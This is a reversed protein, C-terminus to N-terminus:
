LVEDLVTLLAPRERVGDRDHGLPPFAYPLLKTLRKVNGIENWPISWSSRIVDTLLEPHEVRTRNWTQEGVDHRVQSLLYICRLELFIDSGNQDTAPLGRSALLEVLKPMSHLYIAGNLCSHERRCLAYEMGCVWSFETRCHSCTMHCCADTRETPVLCGPCRRHLAEVLAEEIKRCVKPVADKYFVREEYEKCTWPPRHQAMGCLACFRDVVCGKRLCKISYMEEQENCLVLFSCGPCKAVLKGSDMAEKQWQVEVRLDLYKSFLQDGVARHIVGPPIIRGLPRGCGAPCTSMRTDDVTHENILVQLGHGLCEFHLWCGCRMRRGADEQGIPSFCLACEQGEWLPLKHQMIWDDVSECSSTLVQSLEDGLGGAVLFELKSVTAKLGLDAWLASVADEAGAQGWRWRAEQIIAKVVLTEKFADAQSQTLKEQKSSDVYDFWLINQLIDGLQPPGDQIGELGSAIEDALGTEVFQSADIACDGLLQWPWRMKLWQRVACTFQPFDDELATRLQQRNMKPPTEELSVKRLARKTGLDKNLQYAGWINITYTMGRAFYEFELADQLEHTQLQLALDDEVLVWGLDLEIEWLVRRMSRAKGTAVNIQEMTQFNFMHEQGNSAVYQLTSDGRQLAGALKACLGLGFPVWKGGRLLEWQASKANMQSAWRDFWETQARADQGISSVTTSVEDVKAPM